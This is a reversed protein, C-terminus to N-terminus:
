SPEEESPTDIPLGGRRRPPWHRPRRRPGARTPAPGPTTRTSDGGSAPSKLMTIHCSRAADKDPGWRGGEGAVGSVVDVCPTSGRTKEASTALPPRTVGPLAQVWLYRGPGADHSLSSRGCRGPHTFAAERRAIDASWRPRGADDLGAFFEYAARKRISDKPVRALVMRDAPEDAGAGDPSGADVYEHPGRRLRLRLRPVDPLRLRRHVAPPGLVPHVRSRGVLGAARQRRRPGVPRARRRGDADRRGGERGPRRRAARRDAGPHRPGPLGRAVRRGQGPRPGAQPTRAARLRPRRRLRHLPRRRRGLDDALRRQGRGTPDDRHRAM